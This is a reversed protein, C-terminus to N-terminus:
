DIDFIFSMFQYKDKLLSIFNLVIESLLETMRCYRLIQFYKKPTNLERENKLLGRLILKEDSTIKYRTLTGKIGLM